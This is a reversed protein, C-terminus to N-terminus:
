IALLYCDEEPRILCVGIGVALVVVGALLAGPLGMLVIGGSDIMCGGWVFGLPFAVYWPLLICECAGIISGLIFYSLAPASSIGICSLSLGFIGETICAGLFSGAVLMLPILIGVKLALMMWFQRKAKQAIECVDHASQLSTVKAKHHVLMLAINKNGQAVAYDLATKGAHDIANVQAGAKVLMTVLERQGAQVAAILVTQGQANKISLDPKPQLWTKISKKNGRSIEYFIDSQVPHVPSKSYISFITLFSVICFLVLKSKM